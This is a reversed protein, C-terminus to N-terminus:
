FYLQYLDREIAAAADSASKNTLQFRCQSYLERDGDSVRIVGAAQCNKAANGSKKPPCM